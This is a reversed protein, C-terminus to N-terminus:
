KFLTWVLGFVIPILLNDSLKFKSAFLEVATAAISALILPLLKINFALGFTLCIIWASVLFAATGELSKHLFKHKGYLQGIIAALADSIVLISFATLFVAKPLWVITVLASLMMYTAGNLGTKESTRFMAALGLRKLLRDLLPKFPNHTTRIIDMALLAVTAGGVLLFTPGVGLILYLLVVWISALHLLKRNLENKSISKNM